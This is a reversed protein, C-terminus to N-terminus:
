LTVVLWLTAVFHGGFVINDPTIVLCLLCLFALFHGAFAFFAVFDGGLVKICLLKGKHSNGNDSHPINSTGCGKSEM